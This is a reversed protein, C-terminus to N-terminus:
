RRICFSLSNTPMPTISFRSVANDHSKLQALALTRSRSCRERNAGQSQRCEELTRRMERRFSSNLSITSAARLSKSGSSVRPPQSGVTGSVLVCFEAQIKGVEPKLRGREVNLIRPHVRASAPTCDIEINLTLSVQSGYYCAEHLGRSVHLAEELEADTRGDDWEAFRECKMLNFISVEM